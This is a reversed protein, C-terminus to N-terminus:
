TTVIFTDCPLTASVHVHTLHQAYKNDDKICFASKSRAFAHKNLPMAIQSIAFSTYLQFKTVDEANEEAYTPSFINQLNNFIAFGLSSNQALADLIGGGGRKKKGFMKPMTDFAPPQLLFTEFQM